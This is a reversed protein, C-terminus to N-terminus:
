DRRNKGRPRAESALWSSCRREAVADVFAIRRLTADLDAPHAEPCGYVGTRSLGSARCLTSARWDLERGVEVIVRRARVVHNARGEDVLDAACAFQAAAVVDRPGRDWLSEVTAKAVVLGDLGVAKLAHKPQYWRVLDSLNPVFDDIRRLGLLDALISGPWLADDIPLNHNQHQTLTYPVLFRAHDKGRVETPRPPDLAIGLEKEIAAAIRRAIRTAEDRDGRLALHIHDELANFLLVQSAAVRVIIRAARQATRPCRFAPNRDVVSLTLHTATTM